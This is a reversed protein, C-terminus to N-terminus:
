RFSPLFRLTLSTLLTKVHEQDDKALVHNSPYNPTTQQNINWRKVRTVRYVRFDDCSRRGAQGHWLPGGYAFLLNPSVTIASVKDDNDNLGKSPYNIYSNEMNKWQRCCKWCELHHRIEAVQPLDRIFTRWDCHFIDWECHSQAQLVTPSAM